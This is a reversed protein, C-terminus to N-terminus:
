LKPHNKELFIKRIGEVLQDIKKHNLAGISIRGNSLLYIHYKETLSICETSKLPLLTFFGKQNLIASWNRDIKTTILKEVLIKRLNEIRKHVLFLEKHWEEALYPTNLITAILYAAFLSSAPHYNVTLNELTNQTKIADEKSLCVSLLAGVREGYVSM